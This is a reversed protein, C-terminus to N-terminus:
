QRIGALHEENSTAFHRIANGPKPASGFVSGGRNSRCPRFQDLGLIQTGFFVIFAQVLLPTGRIFEIYINAVVKALWNRSLKMLALLTGIITGFLVTLVAFVLTYIAGRIFYNGYKAWFGQDQDQLKYAAQLYSKYKAGKVPLMPTPLPVLWFGPTWNTTRFKHLWMM